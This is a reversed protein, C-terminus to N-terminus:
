FRYNLGFRLETLSLDNRYGTGGNGVSIRSDEYNTRLLEIKWNVRNATQYELGFGMTLGNATTDGSWDAAHGDIENYLRASGVGATIYSLINEQLLIGARARLSATSKIDTSCDNNVGCGWNPGGDGSGSANSTSIDAEAGFVWNGSRWNRGFTLGLATGSVPYDEGAVAPSNGGDVPADHGTHSSVVIGGYYGNWDAATVEAATNLATFFLIAKIIQRKM